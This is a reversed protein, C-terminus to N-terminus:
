ENEPNPLEQPIEMGRNGDLHRKREIFYKFTNRYGAKPCSTLPM